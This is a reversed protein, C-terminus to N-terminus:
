TSIGSGLVGSKVDRTASSLGIGWSDTQSLVQERPLGAVISQVDFPIAAAALVMLFIPILLRNVNERFIRKWLSLAVFLTLTILLVLWAPTFDILALLGLSAPLLVWHLISKLKGPDIKSLM